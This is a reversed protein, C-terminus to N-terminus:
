TRRVLRAYDRGSIGYTWGAADLASPLFEPVNLGYRRRTGDREQSGNTVLLIRGPVGWGSPTAYLALAHGANGPDDACDLLELGAADIYTDWGIREIASRRVEVNREEAIREVTPDCVVWEPVVTGHLAYVVTGDVFEVAPSDQMHLRIEGHVGDPTPETGTVRPREAMVCVEDYAWWWGTSMTIEILVDLLDEDRRSYRALGLARHVDYYAVRHAEQQGYWPVSGSSGPVTTRVASAVADFLSTRLSDWVAVRVPSHRDQGIRRDM